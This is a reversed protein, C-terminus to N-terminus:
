LKIMTITAFSPQVNYHSEAANAGPVNRNVIHGNSGPAWVPTSVVESGSTSAVAVASVTHDPLGSETDTLQVRNKGFKQGPAYVIVSDGGDLDAQTGSTVRARGSMNPTGNRGDAIAWGTWSKVGLGTAADFVDDAAMGSLLVTDRVEGRIGQIIHDLINALPIRGSGSGVVLEMRKDVYVRFPTSDEYAADSGVDVIQIYTAALNDDANGEGPNVTGATVAYVKGQYYAWGDTIAVALTDASIVAGKLRLINDSDVFQGPLMASALATVADTISDQIHSFDEKAGEHLQGSGPMQIEKM